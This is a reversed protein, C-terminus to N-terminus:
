GPPITFPQGKRADAKEWMVVVDNASRYLGTVAAASGPKQSVAQMFDALMGYHAAGDRQFNM